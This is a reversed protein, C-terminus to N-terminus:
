SRPWIKRSRKWARVCSSWGGRTLAKAAIRRLRAHEQGNMTFLLGGDGDEPVGPIWVQFRPDALLARIDDYRTVLWDDEGTALHVRGVPEENQRRTHEVPCRMPETGAFPYDM